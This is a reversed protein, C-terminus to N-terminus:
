TDLKIPPQKTFTIISSFGGSHPAGFRPLFEFEPLLIAPSPEPLSAGTAPRNKRWTQWARALAALAALLVLSWAIRPATFFRTPATTSAATAGEPLPNRALWHLRVSMKYCFRELQETSGSARAAGAVAADVLARLQDAGYRDRAEPGFITLTRQPEGLFYFVLLAESADAFWARRLAQPDFDAPLQQGAGFVLVTTRFICQENLWRQVLPDVRDPPLLHQPDVLVREPKSDLYLAMIEPGLAVPPAPQDRPPPPPLPPDDHLQLPGKPPEPQQPWVEPPFLGAGHNQPRIRQDIEAAERSMWEPLHLLADSWPTAPLADLEEPDEMEGTIVRNEDEPLAHLGAPALLCACYFLLPPWAKM